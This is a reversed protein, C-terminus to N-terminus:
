RLLGVKGLIWQILIWGYVLPYVLVLLLLVASLFSGGVYNAVIGFPVLMFENAKSLGDWIWLPFEIFNFLGFFWALIQMIGIVFLNVLM